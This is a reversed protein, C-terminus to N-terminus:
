IFADSDEKLADGYRIVMALCALFVIMVIVKLDVNTQADLVPSLGTSGVAISLTQTFLDLVARIGLLAATLLLRHFQKSSFPSSDTAFHRLFKALLFTTAAVTGLSLTSSLWSLDLGKITAWSQMHALCHIFIIAVMVAFLCYLLISGIHAIIQVRQYERVLKEPM